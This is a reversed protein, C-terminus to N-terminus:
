ASSGITQRPTIPFVSLAHIFQVLGGSYNRTPTGKRYESDTQQEEDEEKERDAVGAFRSPDPVERQEADTSRLGWHPKGTVRLRQGGVSHREM